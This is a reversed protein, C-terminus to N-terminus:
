LRCCRSHHTFCDSHTPGLSGEGAMKLTHSSQAHWARAARIKWHATGYYQMLLVATDGSLREELLAWSLVLLLNITYFKSLTCQRRHMRIPCPNPSSSAVTAATLLVSPLRARTPTSLVAEVDSHCESVTFLVLTGYVSAISFYSGPYDPFFRRTYRFMIPMMMMMMMM